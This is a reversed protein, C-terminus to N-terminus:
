GRRVDRLLSLDDVDPPRLGSRIQEGSRLQDHRRVDRRSANCGVHCVVGADAQSVGRVRNRRQVGKGQVRLASSGCVDGKRCGDGSSLRHQHTGGAVADNRLRRLVGSTGAVLRVIGM